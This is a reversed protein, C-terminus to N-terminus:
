WSGVVKWHDKVIKHTVPIEQSIWLSDKEQEASYTRPGLPSRGKHGEYCKLRAHESDIIVNLNASIVLTRALAAGLSTM